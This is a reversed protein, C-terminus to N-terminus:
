TTSGTCAQEDSSPSHLQAISPLFDSGSKWSFFYRNKSFKSVKLMYFHCIQCPLYILVVTGGGGAESGGRYPPGKKGTM